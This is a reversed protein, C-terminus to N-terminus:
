ISLQSRFSTRREMLRKNEKPDGDYFCFLNFTSASSPSLRNEGLLILRHYYDDLTIGNLVSPLTLGVALLAVIVPVGPHNLWLRIKNM